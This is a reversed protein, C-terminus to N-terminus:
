VEPPCFAKAIRIRPSECIPEREPPTLWADLDIGAAMARWDSGGQGSLLRLQDSARASGCQAARVLYDLAKPWSQPTMSGAASLNAMVCLAEADGREAASAILSFGEQPFAAAHRGILLREGLRRTAEVSGDVWARRLADTAEEHKGEADLREALAVEDVASATPADFTAPDPKVKKRFFL